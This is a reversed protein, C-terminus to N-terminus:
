TMAEGEAEDISHSQTWIAPLFAPRSKHCLLILGANLFPPVTVAAFELEIASPAAASMSM